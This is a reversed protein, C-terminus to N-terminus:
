SIILNCSTELHNIQNEIIKKLKVIKALHDSEILEYSVRNDDYVIM